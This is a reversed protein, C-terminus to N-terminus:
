NKYDRTFEITKGEHLEIHKKKYKELSTKAM